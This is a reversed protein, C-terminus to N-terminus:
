QSIMMEQEHEIAELIPHVEIWEASEKFPMLVCGYDENEKDYSSIYAMEGEMHMIRFRQEATLTSQVPNGSWDFYLQQPKDPSESWLNVQILNDATVRVDMVIPFFKPYDAVFKMSIGNPQDPRATNMKTLMEDAWTTNFPVKKRNPITLKVLEKFEPVLSYITIPKDEKGKFILFKGTKDVMASPQEPAPNFSTTMEKTGMGSFKMEMPFKGLAKVEKLDNDVWNFARALAMTTSDFDNGISLFGNTSPYLMTGMKTVNYDKILEGELNFEHAGRMDLAFLSKGIVRIGMLMNFEGPGQGARGIKMVQNGKSDYKLIKQDDKDLIFVEGASSVAVSDPLLPKFIATHKFETGLSLFLMFFLM